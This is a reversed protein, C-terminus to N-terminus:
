MDCKVREDICIWPEGIFPQRKTQPKDGKLWHGPYRSMDQDNHETKKEYPQL